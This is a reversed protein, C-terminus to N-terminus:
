EAKVPRLQQPLAQSAAASMLRNAATDQRARIFSNCPKERALLLEVGGPRKCYPVLGAASYRGADLPRLSKAVYTNSSLGGPQMSYMGVTGMHGMCSTGGMCGMGVNPMPSMGGMVPVNGGVPIMAPGPAPAPM